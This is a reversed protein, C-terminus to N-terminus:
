QVRNSHKDWSMFFDQIVIGFGKVQTKVSGEADHQITWDKTLDNQIKHDLVKWTMPNGWDPVIQTSKPRILQAVQFISFEWVARVIEIKGIKGNISIFHFTIFNSTSFM